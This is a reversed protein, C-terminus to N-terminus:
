LYIILLGITMGIILALAAYRTKELNFANPIVDLFTVCLMAGGAFSLSFSLGSPGIDGIFYGILAGLVTPLGALFCIGIAKAKPMKGSILPVSIALGEPINHLGILFVMRLMNENLPNVDTKAFSGISMGEPLNHLAIACILIIGSIILSNSSYSPIIKQHFLYDLLYVVFFGLFLSIIVFFINVQHNPLPYISHQLMDFCVISIMIGSAFNLLLCIIRNSSNKFFSGIIGGLGTGIVGSALTIITIALLDRM